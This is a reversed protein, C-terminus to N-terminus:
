GGAPRIYEGPHVAFNDFFACVSAYGGGAAKPAYEPSHGGHFTSFLVTSILTSEGSNGRFRINEADAVKQGDVYIRAFGNAASAPENVKVHLSIAYYRGLEFKFNTAKVSDGYQREMDQHYVYTKPAGSGQFTVRASWNDAGVKNGGTVPEAPGLGHLKGGKTFQFDNCFKVDYNLTYEARPPVHLKATVRKSGRDFGEYMVKLASSGGVGEGPVVSVQRNKLISNLTATKGGDFTELLVADAAESRVDAAAPFAALVALLAATRAANQPSFIFRSHRM